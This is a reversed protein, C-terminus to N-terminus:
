GLYFVEFFISDVQLVIVAGGGEGGRRADGECPVGPGVRVQREEAREEVRGRVLHGALVADTARGGTDAALGM